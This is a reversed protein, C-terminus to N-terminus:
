INILSLKVSFSYQEFSELSNISTYLLIMFIFFILFKLLLLGPSIPFLKDFLKSKVIPETLCNELLKKLTPYKLGICEM